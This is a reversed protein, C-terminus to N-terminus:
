DSARVSAGSGFRVTVGDITRAPAIFAGIDFQIDPLTDPAAYAMRQIPSALMELIGQTSLALGTAAAARLVARRSVNRDFTNDLGM